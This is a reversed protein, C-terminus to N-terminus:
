LYNFDLMGSWKWNYKDLRKIIAEGDSEEYLIRRYLGKLMDKSDLACCLEVYHLYDNYKSDLM